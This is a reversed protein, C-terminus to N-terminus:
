KLLWCSIRCDDSGVFFVTQRTGKSDIYGSCASRLSKRHEVSGSLLNLSTHDYIRVMGDWCCAVVRDEVLLCSSVGPDDLDIQRASIHLLIRSDAGASVLERVPHLSHALCLVPESHRQELAVASDATHLWVSGDEYGAYVGGSDTDWALCTCAGHGAQIPVRVLQQIALDYLAIHPGPHSLCFALKGLSRDLQFQCFHLSEVPLESLLVLDWSWIKLVNDRGQSVVGHSSGALALISASHAHKAVVRPRRLGLSWIFVSGQEDGSVLHEEFTAVATCPCDHGRLSFVLSM